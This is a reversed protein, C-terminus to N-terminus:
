AHTAKDAEDRQQVTGEEIFASQRLWKPFRVRAEITNGGVLWLWGFALFSVEEILSDAWAYALPAFVALLTVTTVVYLQRLSVDYDITTGVGDRSVRLSGSDIAVLPNGSSVWRFLGAEFKVASGDREVATAKAAQLARQLRNGVLEENLDVDLRVRGTLVPPLLTM